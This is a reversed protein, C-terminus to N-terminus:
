KGPPKLPAFLPRKSTNKPGGNGGNMPNNVIMMGGGPAMEAPLLRGSNAQLADIHEKRAKGDQGILLRTMRWYWEEFETAQFGIKKIYHDIQVVPISTFVRVTRKEDTGDPLRVFHSYEDKLVRYKGDTPTQTAKITELRKVEDRYGEISCYCAAMSKELGPPMRGMLETNQNDYLPTFTRQDVSPVNPAPM